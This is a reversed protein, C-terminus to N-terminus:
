QFRILAIFLSIFLLLVNIRIEKYEKRRIHTLMAFLMLLVLASAAIPAIVPLINLMMPLILGLAGLLELTGIFMISPASYDKAWEIRDEVKSKPMSLKIIGAMGFMFALGSQIIWIILNM